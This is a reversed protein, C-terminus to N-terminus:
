SLDLDGAVHKLNFKFSILRWGRDSKALLLDYSGTFYRISGGAASKKYHSAVAYAKVEARSNVIDIIYNGAQHHIADLGEFGDSWADCIEQSSMSKAETAGLSTMDMHVLEAFVEDKLRDWLQYDTYYFLRNLVEVVQERETYIM